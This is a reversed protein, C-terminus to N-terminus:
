MFILVGGMVGPSIWPAGARSFLSCPNYKVFAGAYRIFCISLSFEPTILKPHLGGIRTSQFSKGEKHKQVMHSHINVNASIGCGVSIWGFYYDFTLPVQLSYTRLVSYDDTASSMDFDFMRREFCPIHGDKFKLRRYGGGIGLTLRYTPFRLGFSVIKRIGIERVKDVHAGNGDGEIFYLENLIGFNTCMKSGMPYRKDFPGISIPFRNFIGEYEQVCGCDASQNAAAGAERLSDATWEESRAFSSVALM